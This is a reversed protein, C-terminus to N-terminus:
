PAGTCLLFRDLGDKTEWIGAFQTQGLLYDLRLITSEDAYTGADTESHRWKAQQRIRDQLELSPVAALETPDVEQALGLHIGWLLDYFTVGISADSADVVLTWPLSIHHIYMRPLSPLTAPLECVEPPIADFYESSHRRYEVDDVSLILDYRVLEQNRRSLIDHCVCSEIPPLPSSHPGPTSPVPPPTSPGASSESSSLSSSSHTSSPTTPEDLAYSLTTQDDFRVTKRPTSMLFPVTAYFGSDDVVSKEAHRPLGLIPRRDATLMTFLACTNPSAHATHNWKCAKLDGSCRHM